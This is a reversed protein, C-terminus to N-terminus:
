ARMIGYASGVTEGELLLVKIRRQLSTDEPLESYATGAPVRFLWEIYDESKRDTQTITFRDQFSVINSQGPLAKRLVPSLLWSDCTYKDYGYEPYYTHFFSGAAELSRDVADKSLDADSPIHVAIVKEEEYREFEYELTGIRFLSMSVQRYTWWGRDFFMCGNKKGCEALFRTFCKMTDTYVAEPIGKQRYRDWTRRACELQCYLMKMHGDDETLLADLERYAESATEQDLMRVLYPEAEEMDIEEGVPRLRGAMEAQLRIMQYLEQLEMHWVCREGTGHSM